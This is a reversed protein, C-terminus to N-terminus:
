NYGEDAYPFFKTQPRPASCLKGSHFKNTVSACHNKRSTTGLDTLLYPSNLPSFLYILINFLLSNKSDKGLRHMPKARIISNKKAVPLAAAGGDGALDGGGYM